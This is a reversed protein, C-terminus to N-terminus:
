LWLWSRVCVRRLQTTQDLFHIQKPSHRKHYSERRHIANEYCGSGLITTQTLLMAAKHSM